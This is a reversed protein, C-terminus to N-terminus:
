TGVGHEPGPEVDQHPVREAGVEHQSHGRGPDTKTESIRRFHHGSQKQTAYVVVLLTPNRAAPPASPKLTVPFRRLCTCIQPRHNSPSPNPLIPHSPFLRQLIKPPLSANGHSDGSRGLSQQPDM